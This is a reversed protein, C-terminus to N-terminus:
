DRCFLSVCKRHMRTSASSHAAVREDITRAEDTGSDWLSHMLEVHGIMLEVMDASLSPFAGGLMRVEDLLASVRACADLTRPGEVIGEFAIQYREIAAALQFAIAPLAPRFSASM